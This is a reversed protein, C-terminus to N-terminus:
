FVPSLPELGFAARGADEMASRQLTIQAIAARVDRLARGFPQSEFLAHGGAARCCLDVAEASAEAAQVCARRARERQAPEIERGALISCWIAEIADDLYLKASEVLAEAKAVAYHAYAQQRLPNGGSAGGKARGKVVALQKLGETAGHGIGLAVSAVASGFFAGPLRFVPAPHKPKDLFVRFTMDSPVFLDDVEYETSGTGRLGNAHWTDLVHFAERPALAQRIEPPTEDTGDQAAVRFGFVMWRAQAAGSAWGWHGSVRYGGDVIEGHGFPAYAGAICSSVDAVMPRSREVPLYGVYLGSGAGIALNWATSGDVRAVKEVLDLYDLPDVDGGGLDRPLILRYVDHRQFAEALAPPLQRLRDGEVKHRAALGAIDAVIAAPASRAAAAESGIARDMRSQARVTTRSCTRLRDNQRFSSM